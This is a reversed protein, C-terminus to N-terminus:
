ENDSREECPANDMCLGGLNWTCWLRACPADCPMDGPMMDREM